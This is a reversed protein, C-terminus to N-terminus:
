SPPRTPPTPWAPRPEPPRDLRVLHIPAQQQDRLEALRVARGAREVSAWEADLLLVCIARGPPAEIAALRRAPRGYYFLVGEDKLRCLYLTEGPPVLCALEAGTEPANRGETRAPIVHKVFVVKVGVWAILILILGTRAFSLGRPGFRNAWHSLVLVGLITVAPAIPLVYRVHHQAPLSWFLLNPWVWCHLLQVLRREPDDFRRLFAPRLGLLAPISWPLNAGLVVAPFALSEAWPYPKGRSKPAFRQAAERSVTDWLVDWGVQAAVAAAWAACVGVAVVVAILHGRSFLWSLRGRWALFPVVALYFFAPATWKTLFGGAVCVLAGVWVATSSRDAERAEVARLFLFLAGSVWALQLIDIEASPVKDLWLLSVPLLLSATFARDPGLVPRLTAFALLVTITAGVASPIRATQETVQGGPLSALGIAAYM